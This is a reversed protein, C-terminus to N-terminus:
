LESMSRLVQWFGELHVLSEGLVGVHVAPVILVDPLRSFFVKWAGEPRFMKESLTCLFVVKKKLVARRSIPLEKVLNKCTTAHHLMCTCKM